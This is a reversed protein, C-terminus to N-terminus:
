LDCRLENRNKMSIYPIQHFNMVKIVEILVGIRM